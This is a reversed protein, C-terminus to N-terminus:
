LEKLNNNDTIYTTGSNAEPIDASSKKTTATGQSRIILASPQNQRCTRLRTTQEGMGDDAKGAGRLVSRRPPLPPVRTERLRASRAACHHCRALFAPPTRESERVVGFSLPSPFGPATQPDPKGSKRDPPNNAAMTAVPFSCFLWWSLISPASEVQREGSAWAAEQSGWPTIWTGTRWMSLSLKGNLCSTVSQGTM